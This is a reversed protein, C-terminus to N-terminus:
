SAAAPWSRRRQRRPTPRRRKELQTSLAPLAIGVENGRSNIFADVAAAVRPRTGIEGLGRGAAVQGPDKGGPRAGLLPAVDVVGNILSAAAALDPDRMKVKGDPDVSKFARAFNTGRIVRAIDAVPHTPYRDIIEQLTENAARLEPADSGVLCMLKGVDHNAYTLKVVEREPGTAPPKVTIAVEDSLTLSGDPATYRARAVYPGPDQFPFGNKGYHVFAYGRIPPDGARLAMPKEKRCHRLMPEFVFEEGRPDRIAIDVTRPRPGLVQPVLRDQTASLELGLTVPVGQALARPADLKLRLGRDQQESDWGELRKAATAGAFPAGGMIVEERFAHRLHAVEVDDFKFAFRSWYASRGGPFRDPYNMWTCAGPRSPLAPKALTRQWCHHLNFGHGLEHVVVQLLERAIVPDSPTLGQYFVACGQRQRGRRDFMLGFLEPDEHTVAHLLWIAWQPSDAWRSFNAEMAAHLEADSWAANAGAESTDVRAPEVPSVMEIGAEAFAAAATLSRVPGGSPLSGTDYSPFPTVSQERAEELHVTRFSPSEFACLYDAGSARGRTFHTLTAPARPSSESVRPITIQVSAHQTPWSFLGRGTITVRTATISVVPEDVRMSGIYTPTAGQSRFYDASVRRMARPGDVDVRLEVEFGGEAGRYRGCVEGRKILQAYNRAIQPTL